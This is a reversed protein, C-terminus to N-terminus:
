GRVGVRTPDVDPEKYYKEVIDEIIGDMYIAQGTTTRGWSNCGYQHVIIEGEDALLNAFSETVLWWEFVELPGQQARSILEWVEGIRGDELLTEVVSTQNHLVETEILRRANSNEKEM